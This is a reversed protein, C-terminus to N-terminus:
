LWGKKAFTNIMLQAISQSMRNALYEARARREPDPMRDWSTLFAASARDKEPMRGGKSTSVGALVMAADLTEVEPNAILAEVVALRSGEDSIKALRYASTFGELAPHFNLASIHDPFVAALGRHILLYREITSVSVNFALATRDKWNSADTVIVPADGDSDESAAAITAAANVDSRDSATSMIDAADKEADWRARAARVQSPEGVADPYDIREEIEARAAILISLDIPRHKRHDVNESLEILKLAAVTAHEDAVQYAAIDPLGAAMAAHIRHYGAVLLWPRTADPGRKAVEIPDRQGDAEFLGALHAIHADDRVAIREGIEIDAIPLLLLENAMAM